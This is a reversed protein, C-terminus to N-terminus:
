RKLIIGQIKKLRHSFLTLRSLRERSVEMENEFQNANQNKNWILHSLARVKMRQKQVIKLYFPIEEFFRNRKYPIIKSESLTTLDVFIRVGHEELIEVSEQTPYSGFYAKNNLFYSCNDM